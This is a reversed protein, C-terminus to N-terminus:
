GSTNLDQRTARKLPGSGACLSLGGEDRELFRLLGLGSNLSRDAEVQLFVIVEDLFNEVLPISGFVSVKLDPRVVAIKVDQAAYGGHRGAQPTQFGEPLAIGL